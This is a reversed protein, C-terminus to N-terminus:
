SRLLALISEVAVRVGVELCGEDLTFGASHLDSSGEPPACGLRVLCGPVEDLYRAFDEAGMSLHTRTVHDMGLSDEAARQIVALVDPDNMVPPIGRQYHVIAKAGLPEVIQHILRELIPPIQERVVPDAVRVTGSLEASTPIVNDATGAQIRGFVLAMPARADLKRDLLGPLDVAIKSAAYVMDVTQHPRATHGGPGELTVYFRDASATIAGNRLGVKGTTLGPDVHFAFIKSVGDLVGERCLDFAGGPFTEEAPQFIVRVRGPLEMRALVIAVGLAIAAHADHGCAHMVGPRRSAHAFGPPEQIPLADLDARFAVLNPGEGVDTVLGTKPTRLRPSLGAERLATTLLETTAFEEGSLEPDTHIARRVRTVTPLVSAVLSDLRSTDIMPILPYDDAKRGGFGSDPEPRTM